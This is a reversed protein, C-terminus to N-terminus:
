KFEIVILRDVPALLRKGKVSIEAKKGKMEKLIGKVKMLKDYVMTENLIVKDLLASLPVGETDDLKVKERNIAQEISEKEKKIITLRKAHKKEDMEKMRKKIENEEMEMLKKLSKMREIEFNQEKIELKKRLEEAEAEKQLIERKVEELKRSEDELQQEKQKLRNILPEISEEKTLLLKELKKTFLKPFDIHKVLALANSGGVLNYIFKYNPLNRGEDFGMAVPIFAKDELAISKVEALHSTVITYSFKEKIFELFARSIAGGQLPDTGVGIEDILVLSERDANNAIKALQKLRASFSSEGEIADQQDGLVIFIDKFFPIAAERAPVPFGRRALEAIIHFTKLAVTKGGANPGSIVMIKEDNQFQFNNKVIEGGGAIFVPPYWGGLVMARDSKLEPIVCDYKKMWSNKIYLVEFHTAINVCEEIYDFKRRIKGALEKLIKLIEAEERAALLSLNNNLDVLPLPELFATQGTRSYNHIVGPVVRKYGSKFPLVYRDERVSFYDDQLLEKLEPKKLMDSIESNIRDHSGKINKRISTLEKSAESNIEGKKTITQKITMELSIDLEVGDFLSDLKELWTEKKLEQETLRIQELFDGIIRLDIPEIAEDYKFAHIVSSVRDLNYNFINLGHAELTDAERMFLFEREALESTLPAIKKIHKVAAKSFASETIWKLIENWENHM